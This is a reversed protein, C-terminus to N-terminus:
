RSHVLRLPSPEPRAGLETNVSSLIPLGGWHFDDFNGLLVGVVGDM